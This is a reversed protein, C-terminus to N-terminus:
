GEGCVGWFVALIDRGAPYSAVSNLRVWGCALVDGAAGVPRFFIILSLECEGGLCYGLVLVSGLGDCGVADAFVATPVLGGAADLLGYDLGGYVGTDGLALLPRFESLFLALGRTRLGVGYGDGLVDEESRDGCPFGTVFFLAVFRLLLGFEFVCLDLTTNALAVM